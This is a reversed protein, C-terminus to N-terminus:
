KQCGEVEVEGCKLLTQITEDNNRHLEIDYHYKGKRFIRTTKADIYIPFKDAVTETIEFIKIVRDQLTSFTVTVKDNESLELPYLGESKIGMLLNFYLYFADGEYWKIIGNEVRPSKKTAM